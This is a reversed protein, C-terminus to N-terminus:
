IVEVIHSQRSISRWEGKKLSFLSHGELRYMGPPLSECEFSATLPESLNIQGDKKGVVYNAGGPVEKRYIVIKYDMQETEMGPISLPEFSWQIKFPQRQQLLGTMHTAGAAIVGYSRTQMENLPIEKVKKEQEQGLEHGQQSLEDLPKKRLYKKLFQNITTTTNEDYGILDEHVGTLPYIIKGKWNGEELWFDINFRKRGTTEADADLQSDGGEKLPGGVKDKSTDVKRQKDKEKTGSHNAM